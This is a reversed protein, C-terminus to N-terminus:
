SLYGCRPIRSPYELAFCSVDSSFGGSPRNLTFVAPTTIGYLVGGILATDAAGRVEAIAGMIIVGFPSLWMFVVRLSTIRGRLHDPELQQTAVTIMITFM